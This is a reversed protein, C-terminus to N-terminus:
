TSRTCSIGSMPRAGFAAADRVQEFQSGVFLDGRRDADTWSSPVLCVLSSVQVFIQVDNKAVRLPM